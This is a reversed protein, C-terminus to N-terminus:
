FGEEGGDVDGEGDADDVTLVDSAGADRGLDAAVADWDPTEEDRDVYVKWDVYENGQASIKKPGRVVKIAEGPKPRKQEFQSELADHLLWISSEEETEPNATVAVFKFGFKKTQGRTLRRFIGAHSDNENELIVAPPYNQESEAFKKFRDPDYSM